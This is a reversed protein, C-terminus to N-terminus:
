ACSPQTIKPLKAQAIWDHSKSLLPRMHLTAQMCEPHVLLFLCLREKCIFPYNINHYQLYTLHIGNPNVCVRSVAPSSLWFVSTYANPTTSSSIRVAFGATSPERGGPQWISDSHSNGDRLLTSLIQTHM